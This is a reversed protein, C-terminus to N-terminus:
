SANEKHSQSDFPNRLTGPFTEPIWPPGRCRTAARAPRTVRPYIVDALSM